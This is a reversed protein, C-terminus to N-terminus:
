ELLSVHKAFEDLFSSDWDPALLALEAAAEAAVLEGAYFYAYLIDNEEGTIGPVGQGTVLVFPFEANGTKLLLSDVVWIFEGETQMRYFRLANGAPTHQIRVFFPNTEALTGWDFQALTAEALEGGGPIWEGQYYACCGMEYMPAFEKTVGKLLAAVFTDGNTFVEDAYLLISHEGPYESEVFEEARTGEPVVFSIGFRTDVFGNAPAAYEFDEAHLVSTDTERADTDQAITEESVQPDGTRDYVVVFLAALLVIGLGIFLRLQTVVSM